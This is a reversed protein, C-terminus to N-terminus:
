RLSPIENATYFWVASFDWGSFTNQQQMASTSEGTGGVSTSQGSAQMDWYSNSVSNGQVSYGVLGGVSNLGSVSGNSFSNSITTSENDGVLGGIFAGGSVGGSAYCNTVSSNQTGGVLGGITDQGNASSTSFSTAVSSNYNYGILGGVWQSGSAGGSSSSHSISSGYGYGILGGVYNGPSNIQVDATSSAVTSNYAYGVLGGVYGGASVRGSVHCNSVTSNSIKNCIAGAGGNAVSAVNVNSLTLNQVTAGSVSGFLGAVGSPISQSLNALTHGGGDFGGGLLYIPAPPTVVSFDLNTTLLFYQYNNCAIYSLETSSSILFPDSQTGSGGDFASPGTFCTLATTTTNGGPTTGSQTSPAGENQSGCAAVFLLFVVSGIPKMSWM